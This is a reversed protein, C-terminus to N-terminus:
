FCVGTVRGVSKAPVLVGRRCIIGCFNQAGQARDYSRFRRFQGPKREPAMFFENAEKKRKPSASDFGCIVYSSSSSSSSESIAESTCGCFRACVSCDLIKAFSSGRRQLHRSLPSQSAQSECIESVSFGIFCKESLRVHIIKSRNTRTQVPAPISFHQISTAQPTLFRHLLLAFGLCIHV